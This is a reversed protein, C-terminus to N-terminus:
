LEAGNGGFLNDNGDNGEIRKSGNQTQASIFDDGAGGRAGTGTSLLITDASRTGNAVNLFFHCAVPLVDMAVHRTEQVDASEILNQRLLQRNKLM